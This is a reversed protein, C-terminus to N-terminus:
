RWSGLPVGGCELLVLTGRYVGGERPTGLTLDAAVRGPTPEYRRVEIPTQVSPM